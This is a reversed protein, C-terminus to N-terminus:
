LNEQSTSVIKDIFNICAYFNIYLRTDATFCHQEKTTIASRSTPAKQFQKIQRVHELGIVLLRPKLCDFEPNQDKVNRIMKKWLRPVAGSSSQADLAFSLVEQWPPIKKMQLERLESLECAHTPSINEEVHFIPTYNCWITVQPFCIYNCWTNGPSLPPAWPVLDGM